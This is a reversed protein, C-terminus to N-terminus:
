KKKKYINKRDEIEQISIIKAKHDITYIIRHEGVRLRFADWTKLKTTNFEKSLPNQCFKALTNFINTYVESRTKSLKKIAHNKFKVEYM